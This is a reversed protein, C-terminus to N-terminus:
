ACQWRSQQVGGSWQMTYDGQKEWFHNTTPMVCAHKRTGLKQAVVVTRNSIHPDYAFCWVTEAKGIEGAVPVQMSPLGRTAKKTASIGFCSKFETANMISYTTQVSMEVAEEQTVSEKQWTTKKAGAKTNEKAEAWITKM